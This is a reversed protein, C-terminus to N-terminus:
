VFTTQTDKETEVGNNNKQLSVTQLLDITKKLSNKVDESVNNQPFDHLLGAITEIGSAPCGQSLFNSVAQTVASEYDFCKRIYDLVTEHIFTMEGTGLPIFVPAGTGTKLQTKWNVTTGTMGLYSKMVVADEYFFEYDGSPLSVRVPLAELKKRIDKIRQFIVAFPIEWQEKEFNFVANEFPKPAVPMDDIARPMVSLYVNGSRNVYTQM